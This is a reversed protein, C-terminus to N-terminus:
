NIILLLVGGTRKNLADKHTMLGYSTDLVYYSHPCNFDIIRLSALTLRIHGNTRTYTKITRLHRRSKTYSPFVRYTNPKHLKHFRRIINLKVLLKALEKSKTTIKVDYYLKSRLSSKKLNNLFNSYANTSMFKPFM